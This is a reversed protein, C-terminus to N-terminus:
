LKSSSRSFENLHLKEIVIAKTNSLNANALSTFNHVSSSFVLKRSHNTVAVPLVPYIYWAELSQSFGAEGAEGGVKM